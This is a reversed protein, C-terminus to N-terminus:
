RSLRESTLMMIGNSSDLLRLENTARTLYQDALGGIFSGKMSVGLSTLLMELEDSSENLEIIQYEKGSLDARDVVLNLASKLGGIGDVLGCSEAEVGSWVRGGALVNVVGIPLNRGQSVKETFTDYIQDVSRMMAARELPTIARPMRGFDASPSSGVGDINIHLHRSIAEECDVMMGFVGISGTLTYRDALIADAPASIYYGGSAAYSGMSVVVMKKQKLLEVERWMVDAAMASGGPSNVRLVVGKIDDDYRAKRLQKVVTLSGVMKEGGGNSESEGDVITGDVYIVAIKDGGMDLLESEMMSSSSEMRYAYSALTVRRMKGDDDVVIGAEELTKIYLDEYAVEDVMGIQKSEDAEVVIRDRAVRRLQEESISRSLSVQGVVGDWLIDVLRLNQERSDSSMSSRTYPEVASKFNCSKPRFVEVKAGIHSILDGYFLTNMSIGQWEIQGLPHIFIKKAVTALYYEVQSYSEAYAYIPKQSVQTFEELAVRLEEATALPLSELGDLRLSIATINPDTAAAELVKLMSLTSIKPTSGFVFGQLDLLSPTQPADLIAEDMNIELLTGKKIPEVKPTLMTIAATLGGVIVVLFLLTAVIFAALTIFLHKFFRGM